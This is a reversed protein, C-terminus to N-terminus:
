QLVATPQLTEQLVGIIKWEEDQKQLIIIKSPNSICQRKKSFVQLKVFAIRSAEDFYIQSLGVASKRKFLNGFFSHRLPAKNFSIINVTTAYKSLSDLKATDIQRFISNTDLQIHKSQLFDHVTSEYQVPVVSVMRGSRYFWRQYDGDIDYKNVPTITENIVDVKRDIHTLLIHQYIRAREDIQNEQGGAAFSVLLAIVYFSKM